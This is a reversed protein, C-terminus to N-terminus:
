INNVELDLPLQNLIEKIALSQLPIQEKLFIPPSWIYFDGQIQQFVKPDSGFLLNIPNKKLNANSKSLRTTRSIHLLIINIHFIQSSKAESEGPWTNGSIIAVIPSALHLVAMQCCTAVGVSMVKLM